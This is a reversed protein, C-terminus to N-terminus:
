TGYSNVIKELRCKYAGNFIWMLINNIIGLAQILLIETAVSSVCERKKNM